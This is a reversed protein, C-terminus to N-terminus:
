LNKRLNEYEEFMEEIIEKCSQREKIMGAIQGSMLSGKEVDGDKVAKRLAGRALEELEEM